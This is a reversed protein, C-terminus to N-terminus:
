YIQRARDNTENSYLCTGQFGTKRTSKWPAELSDRTSEMVNQKTFGIDSPTEKIQGSVFSKMCMEYRKHNAAFDFKGTKSREMMDYLRDLKEESDIPTNKCFMHGLKDLFRSPREIPRRGWNGGDTYSSLYLLTKARSTAVYFCRREENISEINDDASAFSAPLLGESVGPVFVVPWELGKAGHITSIAVKPKNEDGEKADPNTDFLTVLSLFTLLFETGSPVKIVDSASDQLNEIDITDTMNGFETEPPMEFDMLQSKVEMINLDCNVDESFEKKIGSKVYLNLFFQDMAAQNNAGQYMENLEKRADEIIDLFSELSQKVKPGLNCTFKSEAVLRLTKFVLIPSVNQVNLVQQKEIISDLETVSKPGLGRKPFNSSRLLAIRDNENAVCRLYDVMAAVEKREWFAKGRVMFYPIKKKTLETEIVRTQYASRVLIAMDSYNFLGDPFRKLHDIQYAIWRGEQDSSELDARMPKFSTDLQSRLNKTMRDTQQRMINESVQLIDTTSRYNETLSIIKAQIQHSQLYHQRMKDFNGSQAHRFAYISQDPDGVITVNHQLSPITLHGKAFEYMLQLQIENTDQFEDVLTHEIQSLVPFRSVIKYCSLLCDDFDLLKNTQLNQQYHTYVIQVFLNESSKGVDEITIGTAKLQSIKKRLKKMDYGRYKESENKSRFPVTQEEPLLDIIDWEPDSVRKLLVDILIQLADRDDAIAYNEIGIRKGFKQIIKYCISHFTGILLNGVVIETGKLMERLREMMENAAKKTFTTVIINHPLIQEHLLLYAVRSVLVKTKGTGPGAVIQLVGSSPCTVADKQSANLTALIGNTLTSYDM